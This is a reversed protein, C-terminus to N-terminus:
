ILIWIINYISNQFNGQDELLNELQNRLGIKKKYDNMM